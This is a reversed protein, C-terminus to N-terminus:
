EGGGIRKTLFQEEQELTKAQKLKTEAERITAAKKDMMWAAYGEAYAIRLDCIHLRLRHLTQAAEPAEIASLEAKRAQWDPLITDTMLDRLAARTADNGLAGASLIEARQSEAERMATEHQAMLTATEQLYADVKARRAKAIMAVFDRYNEVETVRYHGDAAPALKVRLVFDEEVDAPRVRVIAVATDDEDHREIRDVGALTTGALGAKEMAVSPDLLAETEGETAQPWAGTAVYTQIADHFSKLIPTKVMSAFSEVAAKAEDNMPQNATVAGSMFDAYSHDLVGDVDVYQFFTDADHKELSSTIQEVAYEPTKTHHSVYWWVGGGTLLLVIVLLLCLRQKWGLSMM